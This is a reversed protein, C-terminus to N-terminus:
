GILWKAHCPILTVQLGVADASAANSYLANEIHFGERNGKTIVAIDGEWGCVLIVQAEPKVIRLHREVKAAFGTLSLWDNRREIALLMRANLNEVGTVERIVGTGEGVDRLRQNGMTAVVLHVTDTSHATRIGNVKNNCDDVM